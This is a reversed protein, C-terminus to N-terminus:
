LIVGEITSLQPCAQILKKRISSIRQDLTQQDLKLSKRIDQNTFDYKTLYMILQLEPYTFQIKDLAISIESVDATSENEIRQTEFLRPLAEREVLLHRLCDYCKNKIIIYPVNKHPQEISFYDLVIEQTLSECDIPPRCIKRVISLVREFEPLYEEDKLTFM